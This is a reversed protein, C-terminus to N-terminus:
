EEEINNKDRNKARFINASFYIILSSLIYIASDTKVEVIGKFLSVGLIGLLIATGLFTTQNLAWKMYKLM